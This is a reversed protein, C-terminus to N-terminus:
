FTADMERVVQGAEDRLQLRLASANWDIEITGFHLGTFPEGVRLRNPEGPFDKWIHTMGSATVECLPPLGNREIRAFEGIHRDGSLLIVGPTRLKALMELLRARSRPYDAWKEHRHEESLVQGGSAILHIQADSKALTRELWAWQVEGLIDGDTHPLDRHYRVDLLLVCVRRGPPGYISAAYIGEQRRRPNDSPEDLFDLLLQQSEARLPYDRGANNQGYDHDDWTGIIPCTERLKLYGPNARQAAWKARLVEVDRSDGYINDGLWIWLQPRFAVIPEWLPQPLWERNCSGFAIRDLSPEATEPKPLCGACVLAILYVTRKM